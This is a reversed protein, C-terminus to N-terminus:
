PITVHWFLPLLYMATQWLCWLQWVRENSKRDWRLTVMAGGVILIALWVIPTVDWFAPVAISWIVAPVAPSWRALSSGYVVPITLRGRAIDGATDAFDQAQVTTAITAGMLATWYKLIPQGERIINGSLLTMTAGWGFCSLGVTNVANRLLPSTSSGNLDNYLWLLVMLTVSPVFSGLLFSVALSLQVAVRLLGQAEHPSLRGSPMPRWPKNAKDEVM